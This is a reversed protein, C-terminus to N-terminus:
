QLSVLVLVLGRGKELPSMAKGIVAGYSRERDTAKMAHGPVSSTTLLDGPKIPGNACDALAYVRGTLAVHVGGEAVGPPCLTLGPQLGGAGSVVGAVRRDYAGGSLKLRGPNQDDIVVLSGKPMPEAQSVSFPEAVDAGGRIVLVDTAATGRVDLKYSPSTTGIGVNGDNRIVMANIWAIAADANGTPATRFYIDGTDAFGISAAEDALIRRDEVLSGVWWSNYSISKWLGDHFLLRDGIQLREKPDTTGIGVKGSRDVYVANSPGGEPADLSNAAEVPVTGIV